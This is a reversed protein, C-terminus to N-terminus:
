FSMSLAIWFSFIVDPAWARIREVWGPANINEPIFSTINHKRALEAVSRFWGNEGPNDEYTFVASIDVGREILVRLGMCGMEHYALVVVSM